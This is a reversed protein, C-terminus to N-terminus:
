GQTLDRVVVSACTMGFTGTVFGATGYIISRQECSHFENKGGPCVCRFGKGGDYTLEQPEMPHEMSFVAPIGFPGEAPFDYKKRLIKRVSQALADIKTDALDAVKIMTPDM